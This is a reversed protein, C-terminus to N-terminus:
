NASSWNFKVYAQIDREQVSNSLEVGRRYYRLQAGIDVLVSSSLAFRLGFDPGIAYNFFSSSLSSLMPFDAEFASYLEFRPSLISSYRLRFAPGYITSSLPFDVAGPLAQVTYKAIRLGWSASLRRAGSWVLRDSLLSLRVSSLSYNIDTNSSGVDFLAEYTSYKLGLHGRLSGEMKYASSAPASGGSEPNASLKGLGLSIRFIGDRIEAPMGPNSPSLSAGPSSSPASGSSDSNKLEIKQFLSINKEGDIIKAISESPGVVEVIEIRGVSARQRSLSLVETDKVNSFDFIDIAEGVFAGHQRGLNIAVLKKASDVGTVFGRYPIKKSITKVLAEAVQYIGAESLMRNGYVLSGEFVRRAGDISYVVLAVQKPGIQGVVIAEFNGDQGEQYIRRKDPRLDYVRAIESPELYTLQTFAKRLAISFRSGLDAPHGASIEPLVTFEAIGIKRFAQKKAAALGDYASGFAVVGGDPSLVAVPPMKPPLKARKKENASPSEAASDATASDRLDESEEDASRAWASDILIIHSGFAGIALIVLAPNGLAVSVMAFFLCLKTRIFIV